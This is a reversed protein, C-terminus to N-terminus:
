ASAVRVPPYREDLTYAAVLRRMATEFPSPQPLIVDVKLLTDFPDTLLVHM